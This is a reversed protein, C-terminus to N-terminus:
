KSLIENLKQNRDEQENGTALDYKKLLHFIVNLTEQSQENALFVNLKSYIDSPLFDSQSKLKVLVDDHSHDIKCNSM